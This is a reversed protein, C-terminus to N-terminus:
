GPVALLGALLFSVTAISLEYVVLALVFTRASPGLIGEGRALDIATVGLAVAVAIGHPLWRTKLGWAKTGTDGLAFLLVLFLVALKAPALDQVPRPMLLVWVLAAGLLLGGLLRLARGIPGPRAFGGAHLGM